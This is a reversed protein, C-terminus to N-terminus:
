RKRRDAAHGQFTRLGLELDEREASQREGQGSAAIMRADVAKVLIRALECAFPIRVTERDIREVVLLEERDVAHLGKGVLNLSEAWGRGREGRLADPPKTQGRLGAVHDLHRPYIPSKGIAPLLWSIGAEGKGTEIQGARQDVAVGM